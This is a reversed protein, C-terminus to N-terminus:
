SVCTYIYFSYCLYGAELMNNMSSVLDKIVTRLPNSPNTKANGIAASKWLNAKDKAINNPHNHDGSLFLLINEKDCVTATTHCM